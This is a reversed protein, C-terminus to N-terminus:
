GVLVLLWYRTHVANSSISSVANSQWGASACFGEYRGDDSRADILNKM